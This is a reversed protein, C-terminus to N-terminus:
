KSKHTRQTSAFFPQEFFPYDTYPIADKIIASIDGDCEKMLIPCEKDDLGAFTSMDYFYLEIPMRKFFAIMRENLGTSFAILSNWFGKERCCLIDLDSHETFEGRSLSGFIVCGRISSVRNVRAYLGDLYSLVEQPKNRALRRNPAVSLAWIHGNLVWMATHVLLLSDILSWIPTIVRQLLYYIVFAVCLEVTFRFTLERWEM